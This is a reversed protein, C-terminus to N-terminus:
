EVYEKVIDQAVNLALARVTSPQVLMGKKDRVGDLKQMLWPRLKEAIALILNGKNPMISHRVVRVGDQEGAGGNEDRGNRANEVWTNIADHSM